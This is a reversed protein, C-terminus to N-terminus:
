LLMVFMCLLPVLVHMCCVCYVHTVNCVYVCICVYLCFLPSTLHEWGGLCLPPTPPSVMPNCERELPHHLPAPVSAQYSHCRVVGRQNRARAIQRNNNGVPRREGQM